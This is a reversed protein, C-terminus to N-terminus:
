IARERWADVSVVDGEITLEQVVMRDLEVQLIVERELESEDIDGDIYSQLGIGAIANQRFEGKEASLLHGVHQNTAEGIVFDGGEILPELTDNDYIIDFLNVKAM